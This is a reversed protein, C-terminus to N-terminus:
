ACAEGTGESVGVTVGGGVAIDVGVANGVGCGVAVGDGVGKGVFVGRGLRRCSWCYGRRGGGGQNTPRQNNDLSYVFDLFIHIQLVPTVLRM